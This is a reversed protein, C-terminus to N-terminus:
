IKEFTYNKLKSKLNKNIKTKDDTFHIKNIMSM